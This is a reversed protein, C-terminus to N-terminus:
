RAGRAVPRKTHHRSARRTRRSSRPNGGPTKRPNHNGNNGGEDNEVPGYAAAALVQWILGCGTASVVRLYRARAKASRSIEDLAQTYFTLVPGPHEITTGDDLTLVIDDPVREELARVRAELNKGSM